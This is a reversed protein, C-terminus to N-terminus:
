EADVRHTISSRAQFKRLLKLKEKDRKSTPTVRLAMDYYPCFEGEHSL